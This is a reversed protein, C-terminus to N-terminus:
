FGTLNLREALRLRMVTGVAIASGSGGNAFGDRYVGFGATATLHDGGVAFRTDVEGGYSGYPGGLVLISTGPTGSGRLSYDVIGTPAPFPDAQSAVGVLIRSGSQIRTTLGAQQDFYLGELRVNGAATPSFGRVSGPGYLGIVERGIRTGFADAASAVANEGARGDDTTTLRGSISVPAEEESGVADLTQDVDDPDAPGDLANQTALPAAWSALAITVCSALM